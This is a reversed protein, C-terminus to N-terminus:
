AVRRDGAAPTEGTKSLNEPQKDLAEIQRRAPGLIAAHIAGLDRSAREFLSNGLRVAHAAPRALPGFVSLLDDLLDVEVSEVANRLAVVAGTDGEILLTRSFFLADGDVRGQLLDILAMLPGRITAATDVGDAHRLASLQPYDPDLSLVFVLPLDIPDILYTPDDLSSLRDFLNPHRRRVAGLACTLGPQLLFPLLPAAAIGALLFSPISMPAGHTPYNAHNWQSPSVARDEKASPSNRRSLIQEPSTQLSAFHRPRQGM